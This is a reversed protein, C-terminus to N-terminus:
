DGGSENDNKQEGDDIFEADSAHEESDMSRPSNPRLEESSTAGQTRQKAKWKNLM